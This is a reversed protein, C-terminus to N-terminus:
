TRWKTEAMRSMDAKEELQSMSRAKNQCTLEHEGNQKKLHDNSNVTKIQFM